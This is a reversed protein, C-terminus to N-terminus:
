GTSPQVCCVGGQGDSFFVYLGGSGGEGEGEWGGEGRSGHPPLTASTFSRPGAGLCPLMGLLKGATFVPLVVFM